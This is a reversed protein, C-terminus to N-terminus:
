PVHPRVLQTWLAYGAASLHLGDDALLHAQPQGDSDLMPTHVDIYTLRGDTACDDAVLANAEQMAELLSLRALSPKIALFLVRTSPMRAHLRAVLMEFDAAVRAPKKGAAIANDGAYIVVVAPEHRLVLLDLYELADSIQSGGFGRNLYDRGPFSRDLDWFRISSSGLFVVGGTRYPNTTDQADFAVLEAAFPGGIVLASSPGTPSGSESGCSVTLVVLSFVLQRSWLWM